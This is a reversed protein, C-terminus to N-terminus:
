CSAWGFFVFARGTQGKKQAKTREEKTLEVCAAPGWKDDAIDAAKLVFRRVAAPIMKIKAQDRVAVVEGDRYTHYSGSLALDVYDLFQRTTIGKPRTVIQYGDKEAITGTYGRHGYEYKAEKVASTFAKGPTSGFSVTEFYEAGM